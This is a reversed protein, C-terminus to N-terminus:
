DTMALMYVTCALGDKHIEPDGRDSSSGRSSSLQPNRSAIVFTIIFLNYYCFFTVYVQLPIPM